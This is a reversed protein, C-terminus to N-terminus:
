CRGPGALEVPIFRPCSRYETTNLLLHVRRHSLASVISRHFSFLPMLFCFLKFFVRLYLFLSYFSPLFSFPADIRWRKLQKVTVSFWETWLYWGGKKTKEDTKHCTKLIFLTSWGWVNCFFKVRPRYLGTEIIFEMRRGKLSHDVWYTGITRNCKTASWSYLTTM